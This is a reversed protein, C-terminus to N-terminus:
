AEYIHRRMEQHPIGAEYFEPGWSIFGRKYYFPTAHITSHVFVKAFGHGRAEECLAALLAAGVGLGRWKKRVAMRGIRPIPANLIVRGTGIVAGGADRAVAHRCGEIDADFADSELEPPVSHEVVFVVYRLQALETGDARWETM